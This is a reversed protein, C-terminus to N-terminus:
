AVGIGALWRRVTHATREPDILIRAQGALEVLRSLHLVSRGSELGGLMRPHSQYGQLYSVFAVGTKYYSTPAAFVHRSLEVTPGLLERYGATDGADLRRLAAAATPACLAFAGLLADSHGADDGQILDLYNYDDGTLLRVGDPLARRMEIERGADLLSMKIGAVHAANDTIIDRVVATAADLSGGGWYGALQPDFAEGLWHLVVPRSAARLVTSYVEAYDEPTRAARALERSCMLVATGGRSEVFELQELYADTVAALDAPGTLQDTAVGVVVRGDPSGYLEACRALSAEVLTQVDPWTLGMGRQATDMAEAVGLGTAWVRERVALTAAWDVQGPASPTASTLPDAVVHAAAYAVRSTPREGRDAGQPAPLLEVDALTGDPRPLAVTTASRLSTTTM